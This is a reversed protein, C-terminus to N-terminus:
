KYQIKLFKNERLIEKVKIFDSYKSGRDTEIIVVVEEKDIEINDLIKKLNTIKTPKEDVLLGGNKNILVKITENKPRPPAGDNGTRKKWDKYAKKSKLVEEKTANPKSFLRKYKNFEEENLAKKKAGTKIPEEKVEIKEQAEIRDAFLFLFGTFLPIVAMKKFLIISQSSRTTMMKLRKKTVVYNLNSALYYENKWTAKNLLLHQYKFTNKHKYIVTEDALFEHNLQIAKKLLVFLPNIWFAIQLIEVLLIDITHRQSVHTLEHTFLEKELSKSEYNEKNIFIYNWFTYPLIKDKVLVLTANNYKVKKNERAKQLIHFLNNTFRFLFLTSILIYMIISILWYDISTKEDLVEPTSERLAVLDLYQNASDIIIPTSESYIVYLPALFSFLVSGLLYFRNFRHMKERELFLQYFALLLGLCLASKILYSIM